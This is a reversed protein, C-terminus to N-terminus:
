KWMVPKREVSRVSKVRQFEVRGHDDVLLEITIFKTVDQDYSLSLSERGTHLVLDFKVLLEGSIADAGAIQGTIFPGESPEGSDAVVRDFVLRRDDSEFHIRVHDDLAFQSRYSKALRWLPYVRTPDLSYVYYCVEVELDVPKGPSQGPYSPGLALIAITAMVCVVRMPRQYNKVPRM